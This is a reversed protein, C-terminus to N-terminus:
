QIMDRYEPRPERPPYKSEREESENGSSHEEGPKVCLGSTYPTRPYKM